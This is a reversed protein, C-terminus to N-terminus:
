RFHMTAGNRTVAKRTGEFTDDTSLGSATGDLFFAQKSRRYLCSWSDLQTKQNPVIEGYQDTTNVRWATSCHDFMCKEAYIRAGSKFEVGNKTPSFYCNIFRVEDANTLQVLKDRYNGDPNAVFICNKFTIRSTGAGLTAADECATFICGVFTINSVHEPTAHKRHRVPRVHFGDHGTGKFFLGRVTFNSGEKIRFAPPRGEVQDCEPSFNVLYVGSGQFNKSIFVTEKVEVANEDNLYGQIKKM